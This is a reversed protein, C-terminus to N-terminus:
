LIKNTLIIELLIDVIIQILLYFYKLQFMYVRVGFLFMLVISVGM